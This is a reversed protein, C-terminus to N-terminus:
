YKMVFNVAFNIPRSESGGSYSTLYIAPSDGTNPNPGNQFTHFHTLPVYEHAHSLIEDLQFSGLNNKILGQGYSFFRDGTDIQSDKDWGRLFAGRLDPVAFYFQNIALKTKEAVQQATDSDLIEVPIGIGGPKPDAAKNDKKYWVYFNEPTHTAFTWYNGPKIKNAEVCHISTLQHGSLCEVLYLAVEEATQTSSLALHIGIREGPRPDNGQGDITFWVYYASATTNFNFYKGALYNAETCEIQFLYKIVPSNRIDSITFGSNEASAAAVRGIANGQCTVQKPNKGIFTTLGYDNGIFVTEVVFGSTGVSANNANGSQNTSLILKNQADGNATVFTIGTGSQYYGREEDWLKKALRAYPIGDPSYGSRLYRRGDCLLEGIGPKSYLVAYVKGIDGDYFSLGTQTAVIPLYHDVGDAQPVPLGGALSQSIVNADTIHPYDQIIVNGETLIFDTLSVEFVSNTPFRLAIAVTDDNKLGLTKNKNEGFIFPINIM